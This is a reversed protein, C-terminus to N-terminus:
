FSLSVPHWDEGDILGALDDAVVSVGTVVETM